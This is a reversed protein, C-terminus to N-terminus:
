PRKTFVLKIHTKSCQEKLKIVDERTNHESLMGKIDIFKLAPWFNHSLASTLFSLKDSDGYLYWTLKQLKKCTILTHLVEKNTTGCKLETLHPVYEPHTMRRHQSLSISDLLEEDGDFYSFKLKELNPAMQDVLYLLELPHLTYHYDFSVSIDTLSGSWNFGYWSGVVFSTEELALQTLHKLQSIHYGISKCDEESDFAEFGWLYLSKLLPLGSILPVLIHQCIPHLSFNDLRLNQLKTLQSISKYLHLAIGQLRQDFAEEDEHNLGHGLSYDPFLVKLELINPCRDLVSAIDQGHLRDEEHPPWWHSTDHFDTPDPVHGPSTLRLDPTYIELRRVHSGYRPLIEDTWLSLPCPLSAPFALSQSTVANSILELLISM